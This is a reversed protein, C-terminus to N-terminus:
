AINPPFAYLYEVLVIQTHTVTTEPVFTLLFTMSGIRQSEKYVKGIQFRYHLLFQENSLDSSSYPMPASESKCLANPCDPDTVFFLLHQMLAFSDVRLNPNLLMKIRLFYESRIEALLWFAYQM